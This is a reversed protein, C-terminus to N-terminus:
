KGNAKDLDADLIDNMIYTGATVLLSALPLPLTTRIILLFNPSPSALAEFVGPLCFLGTITALCYLLAFKNRSHFLVLQAKVFSMPKPDVKDEKKGRITLYM